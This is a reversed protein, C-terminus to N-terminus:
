RWALGLKQGHQPHREDLCRLEFTAGREGLMLDVWGRPRTGDFLWATPPLNVLHLGERESHQWLHTHGYVYAKVQPRPLIVDMFAKTDTLSSIKNNGRRVPDDPDHHVFVIAPRQARADLSKALWGLQGEGLVGPTDNTANLSDLMYLDARESEIRTVLREGLVADKAGAADEPLAKLFNERHDHNGLTLHLTLGSRRLPELAAVVTAYDEPLGKLAACDGNILVGAPRVPLEMVQGAAKAFTEWPRNGTKHEFARDAAIHTDSLLAFRHRDLPKEDARLGAPWLLAAGAAVSRGLFRRRSVPGLTIPM